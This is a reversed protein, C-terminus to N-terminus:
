SGEQRKAAEDLGCGFRELLMSLMKRLPERVRGDGTNLLEALARVTETDEANEVPVADGQRFVDEKMVRTLYPKLSAPDAHGAIEAAQDLITRPDFMRGHAARARIHLERILETLFHARLRHGSANIGVAAFAKKVENGIAAATMARGTKRSIWLEPPPVYTSIATRRNEIFRRRHDWVWEVLILRLLPIPIPVDRQKRGKEVVSVFLNRRCTGELAQLAGLVRDCERPQAAIADLGCLWPRWGAAIMQKRAESTQPVPLLIGVESLAKELATVALASTGERRLGMAAMVQGCLFNRVRVYEDDASAGLLYDLVRTVEVSGPTYRRQGKIEGLARYRVKPRVVVRRAGSRRSEFVVAEAGIPFRRRSGDSGTEPRLPDEVIGGVVGLSQLTQYFGFIVALKANVRAERLGASAQESVWDTLLGDNAGLWDVNRESLFHLWDKIAYAHLRMTGATGGEWGMRHVFYSTAGEHLAGTTDLIMPMGAVDRGNCRHGPGAFLLEIGLKPRLRVVNAM